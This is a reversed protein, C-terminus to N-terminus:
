AHGGSRKRGPVAGSRKRGIAESAATAEAIEAPRRGQTGPRRHGSPACSRGTPTPDGSAEARVEGLPGGIFSGGYFSMDDETGVRNVAAVFLGNAIGHSRIVTKWAERTSLEPHDPESGIASPYFIIQAGKLGLIRSAEPFWEDWCIAIGITGYRTHFVPWRTSSSAM